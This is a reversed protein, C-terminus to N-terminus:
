QIKISFYECAVEILPSYNDCCVVAQNETGHTYLSNIQLLILNAKDHGKGNTYTKSTQFCCEIVWFLKELSAEKQINLIFQIMEALVFNIYTKNRISIYSSSLLKEPNKRM